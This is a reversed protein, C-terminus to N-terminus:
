IQCIGPLIEQIKRIIPTIKPLKKTIDIYKIIKINIIYIFKQDRSEVLRFELKLGGDVRPLFDNIILNNIEFKSKM